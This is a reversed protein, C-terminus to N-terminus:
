RLIAGRTSALHAQKIDTVAAAVLQARCQYGEISVPRSLMQRCVQWAARDLRAHLERVGAPSSLDLDGYRVVV